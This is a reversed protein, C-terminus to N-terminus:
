HTYLLLGREKSKTNRIQYCMDQILVPIPIPYLLHQVYIHIGEKERQSYLDLNSDDHCQNYSSM